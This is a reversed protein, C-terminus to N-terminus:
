FERNFLKGALGKVGGSIAAEHVEQNSLGEVLLGKLSEKLEADEIAAVLVQKLIEKAENTSPFQDRINSVLPAMLPPLNELQHDLDDQTALALYINSPDRAAKLERLISLIGAAVLKAGFFYLFTAM